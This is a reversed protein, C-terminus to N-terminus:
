TSCAGSIPGASILATGKGDMRTLQRQREGVTLRFFM